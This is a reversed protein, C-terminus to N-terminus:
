DKYRTEVSKAHAELGEIDAFRKISPGLKKIADKSFGIVSSYKIFDYVGLPSSFRATGGTPLTHSPGAIYDGAAEPTNLGLFIAGANKIDNLLDEPKKVCLELHEPAIKNSLKVAEKITETIIIAGYNKLSEKAIKKRKLGELQREIEKRVARAMRLSTTILLSSALEDHEAQSLLDAAIHSAKGTGDNIVLIESPGAIMDIDVTGFVKQKACAVYVNGPGVIKDVKPVTKTGFALAAIAQAGGIRFVKKIGAVKAAALVYPNVDFRKGVPSPPTVMVLEKVGAVLAPISNMLVTSPYVAKGGPVYIGVKEIPTIKQGLTVGDNDARFWTGPLQRKHYARIRDRALELVKRDRKSILEYAENIDSARVRIRGTVDVHDFKKTLKCLAKDGHERVDSIISCVKENVGELTSEGRTLIEELLERFDKDDTRIIKM